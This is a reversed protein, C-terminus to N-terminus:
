AAHTTDKRAHTSLTSEPALILRREVPFVSWGTREALLGWLGQRAFRMIAIAMVGLLILYWAGFDAMIERLLFYVTIGVFPGEIRGIGGIVVIFIIAASWEMVDFAAVPSIRLKQLFILAGIMGTVAAVTVFVGLRLRRTDVGVSAAARPSDRLATLGLGVRSRLLAYVLGVSGVALGLALFYIITERTVADGSIARVAGLPLSMGSGGGVAQVEFFILKFVEAVVWTGIAFYPGTLRFLLLAVPLAILGTVLAIVPFALLPHLGWVGAMLFLAYGGFGVFAQQGVSLLGAYGALLNWMQALALFACIEAVLRMTARDGSMPLACLGLVLAVLALLGIRSATSGREIRFDLTPM